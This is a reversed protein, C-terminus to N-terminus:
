SKIGCPLMIFLLLHPQQRRDKFISFDVHYEIPMHVIVLTRKRHRESRVSHSRKEHPSLISLDYAAAHDVSPPYEVLREVTLIICHRPTHNIHDRSGPPLFKVVGFLM